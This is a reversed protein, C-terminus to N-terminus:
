IGRQVSLLIEARTGALVLRQADRETLHRPVDVVVVALTEHSLATEVTLLPIAGGPLDRGTASPTWWPSPYDELISNGPEGLSVVLIDEPRIGTEIWHEITAGASRALDNPNKADHVQVASGFPAHADPLLPYGTERALWEVIARTCRASRPLVVEPYHPLTPSFGQLDQLPDHAIWLRGQSAALGELVGWWSTPISQAEDIAVTSWPTLIGRRLAEQLITPDMNTSDGIHDSLDMSTAAENCLQRLTMSRVHRGLRNSMRRALPESSTLYLPTEGLEIADHCLARLLGTKGSGPVGRIRLRPIECVNEWLHDASRTDHLLLERTSEVEGQFERQQGPVLHEWLRAYAAPPIPERQHFDSPITLISRVHQELAHLHGGHLIRERPLDEGDLGTSSPLDPVSVAWTVLPKQIWSGALSTGLESYSLRSMGMLRNRGHQAQDVPGPHLLHDHGHRDRSVWGRQTRRVAGGKIEVVLFGLAPHSLVADIEGEREPVGGRSPQNWYVGFAVTWGESLEQCADAFRREAESEAHCPKLVRPPM